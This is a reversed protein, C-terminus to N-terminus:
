THKPTKPIEDPDLGFAYKMEIHSAATTASLGKKRLATIEGRYLAADKAGYSYLGQHGVVLGTDLYISHGCDHVLQCFGGDEGQRESCPFLERKPDKTICDKLLKISILTFGFGLGGVKLVKNPKFDVLYRMKKKESYSFNGVVPLHPPRKKYYLAGIMDKGHSMLRILADAPINTSDSDIFLLYDAKLKLAQEVIRARNSPLSSNVMVLFPVYGRTFVDIGKSKSYFALTSIEDYLQFHLFGDYSPVGILVTPRKGETAEPKKKM